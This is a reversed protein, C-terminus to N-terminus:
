CTCTSVSRVIKATRTAVHGMVYAFVVLLPICSLVQGPCTSSAQFHM